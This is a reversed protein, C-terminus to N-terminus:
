HFVSRVFKSCDGTAGGSDAASLNYNKASVVKGDSFMVVAYEDSGEGTRCYHWAEQSGSFETRVPLGMVQKVDQKSLGANLMAINQVPQYTFSQRNVSVCGTILIFVFTISVVSYFHM